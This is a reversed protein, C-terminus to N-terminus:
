VRYASWKDGLVISNQAEIDKAPILYRENKNTLVFVLDVKSNDFKKAVGNWSQNGGLVRLGVEYGGSPKLQSTTKVQVKKLGDDKEVVLDYDQSDTLPICVTYGNTTFYAIASGLGVDGQKKSNEAHEFM